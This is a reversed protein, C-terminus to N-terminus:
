KKVTEPKKNKKKEEAEQLAKEKAEKAEKEKESKKKALLMETKPKEQPQSAHAPILFSLTLLLATLYKM